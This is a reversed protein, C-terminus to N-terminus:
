LFVRNFLNNKKQVILINRICKMKHIDKYMFSTLLLTFLTTYCYKFSHKLLNSFILKMILHKVNNYHRRCSSIIILYTKM